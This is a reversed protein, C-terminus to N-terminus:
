HLGLGCKEAKSRPRRQKDIDLLDLCMPRYYVASISVSILRRMVFSVILSTRGALSSEPWCSWLRRQDCTGEAAKLSDMSPHTFDKGYQISTFASRLRRQDLLDLTLKTTRQTLHLYPLLYLKVRNLTFATNNIAKINMHAYWLLCRQGQTLM